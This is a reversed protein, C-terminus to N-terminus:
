SISMFNDPFYLHSVRSIRIQSKLAAYCLKHLTKIKQLQNHLTEPIFPTMAPLKKSFHNFDRM